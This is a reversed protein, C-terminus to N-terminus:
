FGLDKEAGFLRKELADRQEGRVFVDRQEDVVVVFLLLYEM